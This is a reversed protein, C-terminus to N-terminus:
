HMKKGHPFCFKFFVWICNNQSKTFDTFQNLSCVYEGNKFLYMIIFYFAEQNFNFIADINEMKSHKLIYLSGRHQVEIFFHKQSNQCTLFIWPHSGDFLVVFCLPKHVAINAWIQLNGSIANLDETDLDIQAKFTLTNAGIQTHNWTVFKWAAQWTQLHSEVVASRCRLCLCVRLLAVKCM